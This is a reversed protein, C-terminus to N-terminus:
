RETRTPRTPISGVLPTVGPSKLDGADALEAMAGLHVAKNYLPSGKQTRRRDVPLRNRTDHRYGDQIDGLRDADTVPEQQM